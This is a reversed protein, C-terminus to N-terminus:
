STASSTRASSDTGTSTPPSSSPSSTTRRTRAGDEALGMAYMLIEAAAEDPDGDFDPDDFALMQNSWDFLKGRDEQPVGM